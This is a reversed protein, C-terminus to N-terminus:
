CSGLARPGRRRRRLVGVLALLALAAHPSAVRDGVSCGRSETPPPAEGRRCGLTELRNLMAEADRQLEAHKEEGYRMFHSLYEEAVGCRRAEFASKGVKYAFGVKEPVLFYADEYALMADEWAGAAAEAEAHEFLAKARENAEEQNLTACQTAGIEQLITEARKVGDKDDPSAALYAKLLREARPCDEGEMAAVGARLQLEDPQGQAAWAKMWLWSAERWDGQAEAAQAQVERESPQPKAIALSPLLMLSLGFTM